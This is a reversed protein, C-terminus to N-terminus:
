PREVELGHDRLKEFHETDHTVVAGDGWALSSAAIFVDREPIPRGRARLDQVIWASIRAAEEDFPLLVLWGIAQEIRTMEDAPAGSAYAGRYLEFLSHPALFLTRGRDVAKEVAGGQAAKGRLFEVIVSTDLTPM